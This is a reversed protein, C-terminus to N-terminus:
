KTVGDDLDLSWLQQNSRSGPISQSSGGIDKFARRLTSEGWGRAAAERVLASRAVGATVELRKRLWEGCARRDDSARDGAQEDPLDAIGLCEIRPRGTPGVIKFSLPPVSSVRVLRSGEPHFVRVNPDEPHEYISFAVRFASLFATSGMFRHRRSYTTQKNWHSTCGFACHLREALPSVYSLAQRVEKYSNENVKTDMRDVLPDFHIFRCPLGTEQQLQDVGVPISDVDRPLSLLSEKGAESVTQPLLFGVGDSAAVLAARPAARLPPSRRFIRKILQSRELGPRSNNRRALSDQARSRGDEREELRESALQPGAVSSTVERESKPLHAGIGDTCFRRPVSPGAV